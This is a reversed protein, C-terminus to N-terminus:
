LKLLNTFGFAIIFMVQARTKDNYDQNAAIM